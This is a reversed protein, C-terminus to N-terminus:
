DCEPLSLLAAPAEGDSEARLYTKGLGQSVIVDIRTGKPRELYFTARENEIAAIAAEESLRWREGDRGIGGIARIRHHPSVRDTRAVCDIRISMRAGQPPEVRRTDM